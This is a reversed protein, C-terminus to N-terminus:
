PKDENPPPTVPAVPTGPAVGPPAPATDTARRGLTPIYPGVIVVVKSLGSTVASPVILLAGFFLLGAAIYVHVPHFPPTKMETVLMLGGIGAIAAGVLAAVVRGIGNAIQAETSPRLFPTM